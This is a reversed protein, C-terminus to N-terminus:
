YDDQLFILVLKEEWAESKGLYSPRGQYGLLLDWTTGAKKLKFREMTM